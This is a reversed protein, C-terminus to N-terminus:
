IIKVFKRKGIKIVSGKKIEVIERWDEKLAKDIKIAKQLILRKAESKSNVEKTKLLLELINIKKGKIKVERIKSPMKKEKFVMNFEQEAKGAARVGHYVGVIERALKAKLKRPNVKKSKLRKAMKKIRAIPIDTCLEFYHTILDDKLSMIKGYMDDPKDTLGVVNGYSKSMKRGDLGVLLPVTLIFKEKKNYNRQLKRGVLMNFTQDTGGVELDVDMAVSDYGQMLPYLLENLWVEKGKKLREQFMDRELLRSITFQSSLEILDKFKIKGLWDANRKVKVKSFDLIKSVQKKYTAINKKIQDPTLIKRKRDRGSPDGIQATFTGFLLIVKHGLEQFDKLKRLPVTHGLHIKSSTPDIGLYLTITQKKMLEKLSKKDPLIQKVGQTLAQEIKKPNTNLM